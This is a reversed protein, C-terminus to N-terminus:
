MGKWTPHLIAMLSVRVSAVVVFGMADELATIQTAPNTKSAVTGRKNSKIPSNGGGVWKPQSKAM